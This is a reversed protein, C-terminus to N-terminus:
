KAGGKKAEYTKFAAYAAASIFEAKLAESGEYEAKWGDPTQAAAKGSDGAAAPAAGTATKDDGSMGALVAAGAMADAEFLKLATAEASSGDAKAAAVIEVGKANGAVKAALKDLGAIRAREATLAAAAKADADATAKAVAADLEAKTIGAPTAAAPDSTPETMSRGKTSSNRGAARSLDRLVSEFTGVRDALGAKVADAGILVDGELASIADASLQQRHEIILSIFGEMMRDARSRLVAEGDDGLPVAPHGVMKKSGTSIVTAKVGLNELRKSHDFHMTVVGISGVLGGDNVVIEDAVCGLAYAASAMVANAVAVLRKGNAAARIERAADFAGWAEGGPSNIDLVITRIAPDAAAQRVQEVVGEYSTLGSSAGMWAGRNVLEGMISVVGVAGHARYGKWRGTDRDVQETGVFRSARTEGGEIRSRLYSGVAEAAEVTALLPQGFVLGAVHVYRHDENM